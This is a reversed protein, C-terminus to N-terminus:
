LGTIPLDTRETLRQASLSTVPQEDIDFALTTSAAAAGERGDPAGAESVREGETAGDNGNTMLRRRSQRDRASWGHRGIWRAGTALPVCSGLDAVPSRQGGVIQAGGEPPLSPRSPSGRTPQCRPATAM